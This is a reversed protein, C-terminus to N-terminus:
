FTSRIKGATVFGLGSKVIPNNLTKWGSISRKAIARVPKYNSRLGRIIASKSVNIGSGIASQGLVSSVYQNTIFAGATGAAAAIYPSAALVYPTVAAGATFVSSSGGLSSMLAVGVPVAFAM